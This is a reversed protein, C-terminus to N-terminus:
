QSAAEPMFINNDCAYTTTAEASLIKLNNRIHFNVIVTITKTFTEIQEQM